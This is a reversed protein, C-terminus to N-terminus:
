TNSINITNFHTRTQLKMDPNLGQPFSRTQRGLFSSTLIPPIPRLLNQIRQTNLTNHYHFKASTEKLIWSNISCLPIKDSIKLGTSRGPNNPSDLSTIGAFTSQLHYLTVYFDVYGSKLWAANHHTLLSYMLPSPSHNCINVGKAKSRQFSLYTRNVTHLGPTAISSPQPLFIKRHSSWALIFFLFSLAFSIEKGKKHTNGIIWV